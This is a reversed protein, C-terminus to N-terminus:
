CDDGKCRSGHRQQFNQTSGHFVLNGRKDATKASILAVDAHLPKELLYKVGDVELTQKGKEVETGVGTKTLIGGLGYGASRIQEALTGQPVLVVETEGEM